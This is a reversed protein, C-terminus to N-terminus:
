KVEIKRRRSQAKEDKPLTIKLVGKKFNASAKDADVEVPLPIARRFMGYSRESRYYDGKEEEHEENKEGEIMLMGDELSVHIDKEAMGPLEASVRVEKDTETVDIEPQFRGLGERFGGWLPSGGLFTDFLRDMEHRLQAVPSVSEERMALQKDNRKWPILDKIAM